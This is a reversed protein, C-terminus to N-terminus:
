SFGSVLAEDIEPYESIRDKVYEVRGLLGKPVEFGLCIGRHRNAYHSWLLPNRWRQSFCILGRNKSLEKKMAQMGRRLDRDALHAGLFEFPDNLEMIRSIRLRREEISKLAYKEDLFRYVRM